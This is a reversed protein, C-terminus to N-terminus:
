ALEPCGRKNEYLVQEATQILEDITANSDRGSVASGFVFAFSHHATQVQEQVAGLLRDPADEWALMGFKGLALRGPVVTEGAVVRIVNAAEVVTQHLAARGCAADVDALSDIEAAVLVATRGSERALRLDRSGIARFSGANFFGTELDVAAIRETARLFRNREISNLIARALPQCDIEGKLIFDQGGERLMRRGLGEDGAELLAILPVGFAADRFTTFSELGRADPLAPNFLVVDPPENELVAVADTATELHNVRCHVWTGGHTREEMEALAEQIFRADKLDPEVLLVRIDNM